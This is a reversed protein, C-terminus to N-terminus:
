QSFIGGPIVWQLFAFLFLFAALAIMGNVIRKKAAAIAQDNGGALTYQIGGLIIVGVVVVGVGISLFNVIQNIDKVICSDKLPTGQDGCDAAYANSSGALGLVFSLLLVGCLITLCIALNRKIKQTM